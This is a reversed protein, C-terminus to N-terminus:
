DTAAAAPGLISELWALLREPDAPSLRLGVYGDPRVVEVTDAAAADAVVQLRGPFLVEIARCVALRRRSTDSTAPGVRIAHAIGAQGVWQGGGLVIPSDEYGVDLESVARTMRDRVLSLASLTPAVRDRVARLVASPSTGIWTAAGTARLVAAAVPLREAQYSDLLPDPAGRDV